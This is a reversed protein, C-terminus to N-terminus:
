AAALAQLFPQSGGTAICDAWVFDLRQDVEKMAKFNGFRPKTFQVGTFLYEDVTGDRNLVNISLAFQPIVGREHYAQMLDLIMRQLNGNVRTFLFNGHGGAWVVQHVPKGGNSIPVIKIATDDAETDIDMVHGLSDLPFVDGYNDTVVVSADTGINYGATGNISSPM